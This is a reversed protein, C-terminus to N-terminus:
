GLGRGVWLIAFVAMSALLVLACWEEVKRRTLWRLIPTAVMSFLLFVGAGGFALIASVHNPMTWPESARILSELSM